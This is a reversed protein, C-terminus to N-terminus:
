SSEVFQMKEITLKLFEEDVNVFNYPNNKIVFGYEVFLFGNDHPGYSLFVQQGRFIPRLTRFVFSNTPLDFYAQVNANSDHNLMDFMPILAITPNPQSMISSTNPPRDPSLTVCRTNVACWAWNFTKESLLIGHIRLIRNVAIWDQKLKDKQSQIMKQMDAPLFSVLRSELNVGVTDFSSPITKLYAKFPAYEIQSHLALFLSLYQYETLVRLEDYHLGFGKKTAMLGRGTDEFNALVLKTKPM